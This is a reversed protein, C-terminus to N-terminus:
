RENIVTLLTEDEWEVCGIEERHTKSTEEITAILKTLGKVIEQSTGEGTIKIEYNM